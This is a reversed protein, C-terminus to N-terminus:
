VEKEILLGLLQDIRKMLELLYDPPIQRIVRNTEREIIKVVPIELEQDIDIKLYKSLMDFKRKIEEFLRQLEESSVKREAQAEKIQQEMEKQIKKLTGEVNSLLKQGEVNLEKYEFGQSVKDVRM